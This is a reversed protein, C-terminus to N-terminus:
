LWASIYITMCYSLASYYKILSSLMCAPFWICAIAVVFAFASIVFCPLFYPFRRPSKLNSLHFGICCYLIFSVWLTFYLYRSVQGLLFGKSISTPIEINATTWFKVFTNFCLYFWSKHISNFKLCWTKEGSGFLRGISSWHSFRSGM